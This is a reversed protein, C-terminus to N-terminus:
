IGADHIRIRWILITWNPLILSSIAEGDLQLCSILVEYFLESFLRASM